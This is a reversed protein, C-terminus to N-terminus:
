RAARLKARDEPPRRGGEHQGLQLRIYAVIAWRDEPQGARRVFVDGYRQHDRSSIGSPARLRERHYTPPASFGRRVIM